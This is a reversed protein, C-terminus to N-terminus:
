PRLPLARWTRSISGFRELFESDRRPADLFVDRGAPDRKRCQGEPLPQACAFDQKFDRLGTPRAVLHILDALTKLFRDAPPAAQQAPHNLGAADAPAVAHFRFSLLLRRMRAAVIKHGARKSKIYHLATMGVLFAPLM